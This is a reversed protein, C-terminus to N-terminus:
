YWPKSSWPLAIPRMTLAKYVALMPGNPLVVMPLVFQHCAEGLM